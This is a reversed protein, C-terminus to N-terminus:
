GCWLIAARISSDPMHQRPAEPDVIRRDERHDDLRDSGRERDGIADPQQAVLAVIRDLAFHHHAAEGIGIREGPQEIAAGEEVLRDAALALLQQQDDVEVVELADVLREAM